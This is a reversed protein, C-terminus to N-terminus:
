PFLCRDGWFCLFPSIMHFEGVLELANQGEQQRQHHNQAQHGDVCVCCLAASFGVGDEEGGVAVLFRGLEFGQELCQLVGGAQDNQATVIYVVGVASRQCGDSRLDLGDIGADLCEVGVSGMVGVHRRVAGVGIGIGAGALIVLALVVVDVAHVLIMHPGCGASGGCGGAELGPSFGNVAGLNDEDHAMHGDVAAAAVIRATGGPHSGQVFHALAMVHDEQPAVVVGAFARRIGRDVKHIHAAAQGGLAAAGAGDVEGVHVCAVDLAAISGHHHDIVIHHIHGAVIGAAGGGCAVGDLATEGSGMGPFHGLIHGGGTIGLAVLGLDAGVAALGLGRDDSGGTMVVCGLNLVGAGTGVGDVGAIDAAVAVGLLIGSLGGIIGSRGQHITLGIHDHSGVIGQGVAGADALGGNGHGIAGDGGINGIGHDPFVGVALQIVLSVALVDIHAGAANGEGIGTRRNGVAGVSQLQAASVQAVAGGPEGGGGAAAARSGDGQVLHVLGHTGHALVTVLSDGDLGGAGGVTRDGVGAGDAAVAISLDDLGAATVAVLSNDGSGGALLHAVGGVGTGATIGIDGVLDGSQTVAVLGHGGGGGAGLVAGDDVGAAAALGVGLDQGGQAMVILSHDGSGGTLVSAVGGVGTGATIGVGGILNGSQTMGILGYGGGGGAGLVTGDDIGAVAAVGVGLDNGSQAVAVLGNHGCGGALFDAVGGIAASAAVAEGGILNSGPTVIVLGLNGGGGALLDAVGGVGAMATVAVNGILDSGQTMVVLGLDGGGGAHIGTVGGVGAMAAIGVDSVLHSGQTMSVLGHGGGGGAGLIAGDDVGAVAAVGVGLNQSSQAVIVLSNDGSGGAHIGTVGGIGAMAAIGVDSVLHSGQTM